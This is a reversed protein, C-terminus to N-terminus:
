TQKSHQLGESIQRRMHLPGKKRGEAWSTRLHKVDVGPKEVFKSGRGRRHAGKHEFQARLVGGAREQRGTSAPTEVNRSM